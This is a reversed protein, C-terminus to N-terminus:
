GSLRVASSATGGKAAEFAVTLTGSAGPVTVRVSGARGIKIEKTGLVKGDWVHVHATGPGTSALRFTTSGGSVSPRGAIWASDSRPAAPGAALPVGTRVAQLISEPSNVSDTADTPMVPAPPTTPMGAPPVHGPLSVQGWRYPDGQVGGWTSWGIRTQGTKDQTDSDYVFINLGMRAPDVATPLAKFPIKAEIVYGDYPDNVTSAIQMGPATKEGPGQNADADRQFCPKGDSMKPFIGTKFTTSTNESDGRPDIAIEVSDTRWHRKCDDAGLTTGAKDDRVKVLVNLADDTWTVKGTASCDDASACAEGEWVRSLNLEPGPYEGPSEKGDLAPAAAAKPLEAKPVLELAGKQVDAAGASSTTTITLDYDGGNGGQNSTPLSADTNTVTFDVSGTKGADLTYPKSAADASFGQPLDLKVTGSQASATTNAVDIRVKRSTGSALTLVRKVQGTLAPVGVKGAWTDFDSVRPLPELVGTVAPRVEVSTAAQGKAKGSTLTASIQARGAKAGAPPTVTFTASREASGLKGLDGSGTVNWGAPVSLAARAGKLQEAASAKATVKFARGGTVGFSDTALEFRTGLPLGGQGPQLAGELMAAPGTNGLTFPVRSHIQMYYDCGIKTPDSPADPFGGWGQSVYTRQAEREVQAWTKGGNRASARGGWVGYTVSAANSPTGSAACASGTPGSAGGTQFLRGPAWAQLGEKRLQTPYASANGAAFYAETALRAAMQHNGHQGPLPAPVMTVIVKPRTERVLRVVKELTKDHDWTEATLPTSVTYYFDVKDLYHIDTVGAKGVARREEDERLLGLAPGEETGSANGGGEGRTVTLVGVKAKDFENWQGLTSLAGAEDDPHAGVFLVDLQGKDSAGKSPAGRDAPAAQAPPGAFAVATAALAASLIAPLALRRM